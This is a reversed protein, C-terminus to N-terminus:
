FRDFDRQDLLADKKEQLLDSREDSESWTPRLLYLTEQYSTEQDDQPAQFEIQLQVQFLDIVNTPEITAEWNASGNSLTEYTDGEEAEERNPELLLQMRVAQIDRNRADNNTGRERALLVNVFTESLVVAAMAFLALAVVVEILSFGSRIHTRNM